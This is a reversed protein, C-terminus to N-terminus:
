PRSREFGPILMRIMRGPAVVAEGRFYEAARDAAADDSVLKAACYRAANAYGNMEATAFETAAAELLARDRTLAARVVKAFPLMWAMNEREIARADREAERALTERDGLGAEIRALCSLAHLQIARLRTPQIRWLMSQKTRVLYETSREYARAADGKYLAIHTGAILSYAHELHFGSKSWERTAQAANSEAAEVDDVVLWSQNSNGLRMTVAGYVDGRAIADRLGETQLQHLERFRGMYSLTFILYMRATVREFVLGTSGDSLLEIVRVLHEEARRFYGNCYYAIGAGSAAWARAQITGSREALEHNYAILGETKKWKPGGATSVISTEAGLTRAVRDLDGSALALLLARTTFVFGRFTDAYGLASGVSWCADIRTLEAPKVTSKDRARLALGRLKLLLRFWLIMLLTEFRTNPLRMGIGALVARSAEVGRDFHGSRLLQDAARRRLELAEGPESEAAAREFESAALAGRGANALAEGLRVRLEHRRTSDGQLLELAQAYWEAARDFAFTRLAQDGSEAAYAAAKAAKGAERWHTALAEPDHHSLSELSIAIAEHLARRRADTVRALVSERVRDHYPEILDAWRSGSTRVLNAARLAAAARTFEAAALRAASALVNQPLPKVAVAVLEALERASPELHTVRAWIADDLKVDDRVSGGLAVHRALEEVFLPHGGAERAVLEPDADGANARRLFAAALARADEPGLSTLAIVRMAGPLFSRLRELGADLADAGVRVTGIFLLPPPDPPRLIEALARLGDDDAWQLDDIVVITPRSNAVRLFLERLAAFGRQRLEQPGLTNVVNAHASAIAPVRLMAPFLQAIREAHRPLLAAVELPDIRSLRQSLNDVIGDLTKYPVSEREHCRGTLIIADPHEAALQATYTRVLYSKGIGSEGCVLVQALEGSETEAFAARLEDLEGLRGFFEPATSPTRPRISTGLARASALRELLRQATPRRTPDFHLLEMCVVSLDDPVESAISAPAPPEQMQKDVMVQVPSGDHPRRGTLAEYLMVGVAYLDAAPGVDHSIAQEPAMYAPTGIVEPGTLQEDTSVDAVIGFDLIVVRGDRTVM